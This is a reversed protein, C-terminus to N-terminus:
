KNKNQLKIRTEFYRSKHYNLMLKQFDLLNLYNLLNIVKIKFLDLLKQSNTFKWNPKSKLSLARSVILLGIIVTTLSYSLLQETELHTM